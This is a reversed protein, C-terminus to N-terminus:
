DIYQISQNDEEGIEIKLIGNEVKQIFNSDCRAIFNEHAGVEADLIGWKVAPLEKQLKNGVLGKSDNKAETSIRVMESEHQSM